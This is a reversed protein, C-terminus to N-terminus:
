ILQFFRSVLNKQLLVLCALDLDLMLFHKTKKAKKISFEILSKEAINIREEDLKNDLFNQWNNGFNFKMISM